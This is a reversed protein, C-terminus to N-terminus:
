LITLLIGGRDNGGEEEKQGWGGPRQNIKGQLEAANRQASVM